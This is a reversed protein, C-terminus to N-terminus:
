SKNGLNKEHMSIWATTGQIWAVVVMQESNQAAPLNKVWQPSSQAQVNQCVFMIVAVLFLLAYHKIRFAYNFKKM